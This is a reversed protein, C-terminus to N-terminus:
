LTSFGCQDRLCAFRSATVEPFAPRTEGGIKLFERGLNSRFADDDSKQSPEL